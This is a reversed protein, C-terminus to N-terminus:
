EWRFLRAAALASCWRTAPWPRGAALAHPWHEGPRLGAAGAGRRRAPHLPQYSAAGAAHRGAAAVARRLVDDPLVPDGRHRQRGRGSPAVAAILLGLALLAALTLLAAVAFGAAQRPLAVGFALWAVALILIVAVMVVAVGLNVILQAALVRSPGVPDHGAPAPDGRGRYGALIAPLANVALMAVVFAILIPVYADLLTLGGLYGPQPQQFAPINGFIILLM